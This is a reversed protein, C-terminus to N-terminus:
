GENRDTKTGGKEKGRKKKKPASAPEELFRGDNGPGDVDSAWYGFLIFLGPGM